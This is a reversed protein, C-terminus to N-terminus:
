VHFRKAPLWSSVPPRKCKGLLSQRDRHANLICPLSHSTLCSLTGRLVVVLAAMFPLHGFFYALARHNRGQGAKGGSFYLSFLATVYLNYGPHAQLPLEICVLSLSQWVQLRESQSLVSVLRVSSSISHM